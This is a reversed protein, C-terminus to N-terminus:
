QIIIPDPKPRIRFLLSALGSEDFTEVRFTHTGKLPVQVTTHIPDPRSAWEDLVLVSDLYLRMGEDFSLDIEYIGPKFEGQTEAVVAFRDVTVRNHPRDNWYYNLHPSSTRIRPTRTLLQSFADPQLLPSNQDNYAYFAMAWTLPHKYNRYNFPYPAEAPYEQGFPGTIRDGIFSFALRIDQIKDGTAEATFISPVQGSEVSLHTLGEAQNIKWIGEPGLVEFTLLGNSASDLLRCIPYKFNYPGWETIIIHERGYPHEPSLLANNGGEIPEPAYQMMQVSEPSPSVFNTDKIWENQALYRYPAKVAHIKNQTFDVARNNHLLDTFGTFTNGSASIQESQLIKLATDVGIFVNNVILYDRSKPNRAAIYGWQPARRRQWIAIGVENQELINRDIFNDQGHEIAIGYQNNRIVNGAFVSNYSYGGWIGYTCGELRNNIIKNRGFTAEIGHTPAYSFDNAFILNDNSGGEGTQLTTTGPWIVLGAGCHTASNYTITNESSGSYLLIGGSSQGRAYKGHSYGRVNWDLQNHMIRNRSSQYLGIGIGSNFRFENNVFLGDSCGSLMLANQGNRVQCNSIEAGNCNKLYIGAGYRLWEGSGNEQLTMWDALDERERTSGIRPRYNYSLDSESIILEKSDEALIGVKFGKIRVNKIQINSGSKIHIGIGAFQDPSDILTDGILVAGQFDVVIDDGEITIAASNNLSDSSLFYTNSQIVVSKTIQMGLKVPVGPPRSTCQIFLISIIFLPFCHKM